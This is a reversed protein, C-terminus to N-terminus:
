GRACAHKQCLPSWLPAFAALSTLPAEEIGCPHSWDEYSRPYLRLLAGVSPAGLKRFLQARKEGVGKLFQIDMEFLSAM